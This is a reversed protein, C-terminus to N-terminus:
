RKKAYVEFALGLNLGTLKFLAWAFNDIIREGVFIREKDLDFKVPVLGAKEMMKKLTDVSFFYLHIERNALSFLAPRKFKIMRYAIKYIYNNINPVVVVLMGGPSLLKRAAILNGLPDTTHELVHWFTIVDFFNEPFRADELKGVFVEIGFTNKIRQAAYESVETGYVDWGQSKATNLFIGTGCGVDLLKGTSKLAQIKKVRQQWMKQRLSQQELWPQYYEQNYHSFLKKTEPFPNIYILGCDECRVVEYAAIIELVKYKDQGCLNCIIKM